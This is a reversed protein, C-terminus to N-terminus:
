ESLVPEEVMWVTKQLFIDEGRGWGGGGGGRVM